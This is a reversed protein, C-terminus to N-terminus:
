FSFKVNFGIQRASPTILNATIANSTTSGTGDIDSQKFNKSWLFLNQGTLSIEADYIGLKQTLSKPLNYGISLERLKFFTMDNVWQDKGSGSPATNYRKMYDNYSVAVDNEEFVRTDKTIRGYTDYEVEGSVVKVGKAVYPKQVGEVVEQYRYQTDSDIHAGSHWMAQSTQDWAYGGVRGDFSISLHFDKYTFHNTFGWIWSPISLGKTTDYNSLVPFGNNLIMNGNPDREWDKYVYHNISAGDHVWLRDAAYEPDIEKYYYGTKSWNVSSVWQFDKNKIVDGTVTIEVGRRQRVEDMNIYVSTYGSAAPITTTTLRDMTLRQYYAVDFRLRKLFYLETGIEWDIQSEPKLTSPRISTPPKAGNLSNWINTEISYTSNIENYAPTIKSSAWSGRLKWFSFWDPLKILESLIVSTGVSPYFYSREEKSLTSAWDNRGTAEVFVASKWSVGIKGYVSNTQVESHTASSTVGEIGSSLSYFGPIALGGRTSSTQYNNDRYNLSTGVLADFNFDNLKYDFMGIVDGKVSYNQTKSMTYQGTKYSRHSIPYTEESRGSLSDYGLRALVKFWSTVEWNANVQGFMRDQEYPQLTEYAMFWPNNYWIDYHWNQDEKEKGVKWYNRFDRIDYDAGTWVGMLYIYSRWGYAGAGMSQPATRKSYSMSADMTLKDNLKMDGSMTYTFRNEQNNPWVGKHYIHNLSTRFSGKDGKYAINVNNNTVFSAQMFNKLNDKGKSVLPQESWESTLPDYQLATRGIDMKDGWCEDYAMYEGKMGSSYSSQVEPLRLFGSHFMTNSNVSIKVGKTAARKTTIMIAGNRGAEGYLASATGGKLVEMSEVDDAAIERLTVNTSHVGDIVIMPTAGRLEIALDANFDSSNRVNLGAVKGTLSTTINVGKAITAEEGSIKQVSYGLAKEERKIGLATVVVESIVKSDEELTVKFTTGSAVSIEKTSYGIYSIQLTANNAVTLNFAGDLDTVVGNTTGKEVVNAGIVPDGFEDTVTGTVNKGTQQQVSTYVTADKESKKKTTSLIINKDLVEYTVDTNKFIENLVDFVSKKTANVSVLKNTNIQKTNYFFHFESQAEIQDLVTQVTQNKAEVSLLTNQSYTNAASMISLSFTLLLATIKMRLLIKTKISNKKRM